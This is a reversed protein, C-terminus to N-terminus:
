VNTLHTFRSSLPPFILFDFLNSVNFTKTRSQLPCLIQFARPGAGRTYTCLSKSGLFKPLYTTSPVAWTFHKAFPRQKRKNQPIINCQILIRMIACHSPLDDPRAQGVKIFAIYHTLCQDEMGINTMPAQAQGVYYGVKSPLGSYKLQKMGM